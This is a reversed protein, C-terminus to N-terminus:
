VCFATRFMNGAYRLGRLGAKDFLLTFKGESIMLARIVGSVGISIGGGALLRTVAVESTLQDLRTIVNNCLAQVATMAMLPTRTAM